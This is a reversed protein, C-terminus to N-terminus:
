SIKFITINQFILFQIQRTRTVLGILCGQSRSAATMELTVRETITDSFEIQRYPSVLSPAYLFTKM